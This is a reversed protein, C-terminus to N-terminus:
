RSVKPYGGLVVKLGRLIFQANQTVESTGKASEVLFVHANYNMNVTPCCIKTHLFNERDEALNAFIEQWHHFNEVPHYWVHHGECM